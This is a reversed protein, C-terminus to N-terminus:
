IIKFIYIGMAFMMESQIKFFHNFNFLKDIFKTYRFQLNNANASRPNSKTVIKEFSFYLIFSQIFIAPYPYTKVIDSLMSSTRAGISFINFNHYYTGFM